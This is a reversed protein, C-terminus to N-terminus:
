SATQGTQEYWTNNIEIHLCLSLLRGLEHKISASDGLLVLHNLIWWLHCKRLNMFNSKVWCSEFNLSKILYDPSNRWLCPLILRWRDGHVTNTSSSMSVKLMTTDEQISKTFISIYHCTLRVQHVPQPDCRQRMTHCDELKSDAQTGFQAFRTVWIFLYYFVPIVQVTAIVDKWLSVEWCGWSHSVGM